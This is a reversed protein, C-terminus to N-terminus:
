ISPIHTSWRLNINYLCDSHEVHFLGLAWRPPLRINSELQIEDALCLDRKEVGLVVMTTYSLMMKCSSKQLLWCGTVYNPLGLCFLCTLGRTLFSNLVEFHLWCLMLGLVSGKQLLFDQSVHCSMCGRLQALYSDGLSREAKSIACRRDIKVSCCLSTNLIFDPYYWQKQAFGNQCSRKAHKIHDLNRITAM